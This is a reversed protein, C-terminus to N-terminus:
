ARHDRELAARVEPSPRLWLSATTPQITQDVVAVLEASLTDLDVEDRLRTSFAEITKAADYRRRNFRRDVAQQIRRRAPQFLAAVALTVGAVAWSPPDRTVGGFLQGLVLVAGAYSLGLVATLLGYVLTRNILRDIDYLRYRLVALAAAASLSAPALTWAFNGAEGSELVPFWSPLLSPLLLVAFGVVAAYVFWKLQQRELGRAGFFRVFLSAFAGLFGVAYLLGGAGSLWGLATALGAVGFPNDVGPFDQYRTPALGQGVWGLVLGAAAAWGVVWWRRSPPRGTPFLLLLAMLPGGLAWQAQYSVWAAVAVASSAGSAALVAAAYEGTVTQVGTVLGTSLFLWGVPHEPRRTAVLAGVTAFALGNVLGERWYEYGVAGPVPRHVVLWLGVACGILVLVAGYVLWALRSASRAPVLGSNTSRPGVTM